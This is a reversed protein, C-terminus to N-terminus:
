QNELGDKYIEKLRNVSSSDDQMWVVMSERQGKTVKNAKHLVFSPFIIFSGADKSLQLYKNNHRLIFEGGEYENSKSINVSMTLLRKKDKSDNIVDQHWKFHGGKGYWTYQISCPVTLNLNYFNYNQIVTTQLISYISPFESFQLFYVLSKRVDENLKSSNKTYLGAKVSRELFIQKKSRILELETQDLKGQIIM